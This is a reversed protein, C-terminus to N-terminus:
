PEQIGIQMGGAPEIQKDGFFVAKTTAIGFKIHADESVFREIPRPDDVVGIGQATIVPGLPDHIFKPKEFVLPPIEFHTKPSDAAIGFGTFEPITVERQSTTVYFVHRSDEYFFPAVWPIQLDQRPELITGSIRKRLLPRVFGARPLMLDAHLDYYINLTGDLSGFKRIPKPSNSYTTGETHGEPLSHTNYLVFTALGDVSVRLTDEWEKISLRLNSRDFAGDGTLNLQNFGLATPRNVDSTKTPQWKGNYYESWCLIAQVTVKTNEQADPKLQDPTCDALPKPTGDPNTPPPPNQSGQSGTPAQPLIRISCNYIAHDNPMMNKGIFSSV